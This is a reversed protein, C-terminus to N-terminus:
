GGSEGPLKPPEKEGIKDALARLGESMVNHTMFADVEAKAHTVVKGTAEEFQELMFPVNQKVQMMVMYFKKLIEERDAKNLSKKELLATVDAVDKDCKEALDKMDQKFSDQVKEVELKMDPPDQIRKGEIYRLTCPVGSGVNMTTLLEAFQAASLDLEVIDGRTGAHFRDYGLSHIRKARAVKLTVHSEHSKLSSGFLRGPDGHRRSFQVMAYSEHEETEERDPTNSM